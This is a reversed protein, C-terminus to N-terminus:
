ILRVLPRFASDYSARGTLLHYHSDIMTTLGSAQSVLYQCMRVGTFVM